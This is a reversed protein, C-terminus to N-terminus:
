RSPGHTADPLGRPPKAPSSSTSSQSTPGQKNQDPNTFKLDWLFKKGWEVSRVQGIGINNLGFAEDIIKDLNLFKAM